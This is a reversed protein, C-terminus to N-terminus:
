LAYVANRESSVSSFIHKLLMAPLELELHSNQEHSSLLATGLYAGSLCATHSSPGGYWDNSDWWHKRTGSLQSAETVGCSKGIYVYCSISLHIAYGVGM